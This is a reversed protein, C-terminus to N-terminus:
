GSHSLIARALDVAQAPTQVGQRNGGSEFEILVGIPASARSKAWVLSELAKENDIAVDLHAFNTLNALREAKERGIINYTVLINALGTQVMAEAEGIKQVTIGAAGAKCQEHAFFPLKHTKIHPRLKFGHTDCYHQLCRINGRAIELDVVPVPTELESLDM